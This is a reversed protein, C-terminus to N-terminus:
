ESENSDHNNSGENTPPESTDLQNNPKYGSVKGYHFVPHLDRVSEQEQKEEKKSNM